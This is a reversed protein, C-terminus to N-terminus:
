LVQQIFGKITDEATLNELQPNLRIAKLISTIM